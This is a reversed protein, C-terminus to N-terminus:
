IFYRILKYWLYVNKYRKSKGVQRAGTLVIVPFKFCIRKIAKEINIHLYM